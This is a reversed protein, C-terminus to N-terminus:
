KIDIFIVLDLTKINLFWEVVDYFVIFMQTM